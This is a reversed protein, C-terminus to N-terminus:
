AVWARLEPGLVRPAKALDSVRRSGTLLAVSRLSDVLGHAAALAAHLSPWGWGIRLLGAWIAGLLSLIALFLLPLRPM